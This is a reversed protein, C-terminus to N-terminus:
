EFVMQNRYLEAYFGDEALLAAHNGQEIIAGDKLVVIKDANLITKLRHAIVFSTRGQIVNDMAAQIKAETVTDVNSTAEDLILLRPNTLITRAISMLQKQGASFVSQEDSVATQYGDPLSEIFDHINAQKAADVVRDMSATPEGYRINDAITGTFLQPEQLVIGVNQRLATLDFTRIDTGDFTIQGSDVDYFRNLLNMVTTKGSGTPGVLAVMEGRHVNITVGHLIEKGPVYSFHVDDIKLENQIGDPTGGNVPNVEDPQNRVEDVRRAGTIALQIMSYLSTLSMIPQYYQQAYNVFVVVLALAAGKSMSGNLALWSGFFIVIATNLLSMGQMLPNLIGSWIQGTLASKRVKANYGTFGKVSDDQLGNTILVKQGTIQENIYGNLRGIDDQQQNVATGAKRMVLAAIILAVPTSAMTVWAMTVNQNFMVILLGVFQAVALLVELLAQNMANFINDLDSTFRALIDGDSHTDFYQVRMRQMKRFLGVRMTGTSYATVRALILSSIFITSADGVYLLIYIILTHNFTGLSAQARTAPNTWQALYTTLEEVARGLYTPAVVICWTSFAILLTSIIFGRWYKKLYHWYYKGANRLDNM